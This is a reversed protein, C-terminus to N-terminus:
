AHKLVITEVVTAIDEIANLAREMTEVVDKWYLAARAKFDSSYLRRLAVRFIRDGETGLRDVVDLHPQINKMSDLRRLLEVTEDGLQVLLDGQEHLEPMAAIDRDGLDLRLTVELMDDVADDLATALAHIDERDFPTVFSTHLRRLIERTLEDGTREHAVVQSLLEKDDLAARLVRTAEALNDGARVFLTIFEDDTPILRFRM